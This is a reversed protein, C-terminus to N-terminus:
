DACCAAPAKPAAEYEDHYRVWSMIGDAENRGMPTADLLHYPSMFIDLGRMYTSYSHLIRKGDRIFVSLGPMEGEHEWPAYNYTTSGKSADLTVHFDYNFSNGFSSVWPFTWGMRKRFAEIKAVPARSIAVFATDRAQLHVLGSAISDVVFSCHPCAADDAPDFMLHYVILQRKGAFLDALAVPGQPGEFVYEKDVGVAPLKRRAESLADRERTFAKERALFEKRAALWEDRSVVKQM